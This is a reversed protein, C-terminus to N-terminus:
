PQRELNAPDVWWTPPIQGPLTVRIMHPLDPLGGDPDAVTGVAGELNGATVRISAGIPFAPAGSVGQEQCSLHARPRGMAAAPPPHPRAPRRPRRPPPPARLPRPRGQPGGEQRRAEEGAGPVRGGRGPEGRIRFARERPRQRKVEEIDDITKGNISSGDAHATLWAADKGPVQRAFVDWHGPNRYTVSFGLPFFPQAADYFHKEAEIERARTAAYETKEELTLDAM